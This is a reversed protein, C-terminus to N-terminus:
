RAPAPASRSASPIRIRGKTGGTPDPHSHCANCSGAPAEIPMQARKGGYELAVRFPPELPEQTYFNGAENTTLKLVRGTKDTIEVVADRVGDTETADAATFVTGGLTWDPAQPYNSGSSHCRLCNEGPLMLAGTTFGYGGAPAANDTGSCAVVSVAALTTAVLNTIRRIM